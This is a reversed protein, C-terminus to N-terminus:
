NVQLETGNKHVAAMVSKGKEKRGEGKEKRLM